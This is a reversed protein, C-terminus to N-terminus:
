QKQINFHCTVSLRSLISFMTYTSNTYMRSYCTHPNQLYLTFRNTEHSYRIFWQVPRFLHSIFTPSLCICLVHLETQLL